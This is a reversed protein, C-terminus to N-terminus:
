LKSLQRSVSFWMIPKAFAHISSRGEGEYITASVRRHFHSHLIM